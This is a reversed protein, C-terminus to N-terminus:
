PRGMENVVILPSGGLEGRKLENMKDLLVPHAAESIETLSKMGLGIM